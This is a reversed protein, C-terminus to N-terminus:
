LSFSSSPVNGNTRSGLEELKSRRVSLDVFREDVDERDTSGFPRKLPVAPPTSSEPALKAGSSSPTTPAPLQDAPDPAVNAPDFPAPNGIRQGPEAVVEFDRVIWVLKNNMKFITNPRTGANTMRLVSFDAVLM